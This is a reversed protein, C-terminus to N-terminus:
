EAADALVMRDRAYDAVAQILGDVDRRLATFGGHKEIRQEDMYLARNVELQLSHRGGAPDSYRRVLEVGKYPDNVRVQYGVDRLAGAVFHTFESDCSHGDRDGLCFDVARSGRMADAIGGAIPKMSHCNLHYVLGWRRHAGDLARRLARHYPWYFRDLRHRVESLTLKRDYLPGAADRRAILGIGLKVKPGPDLPQPWREELMSQDLDHPSRNPDIYTRPFLARLLTAGREPAGAFVEDVFADATMRLRSLPLRHGFDPPYVDGSHPSDFVVPVADTQAEIFELVGPLSYTM